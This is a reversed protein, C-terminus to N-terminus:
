FHAFYKLVAWFARDAWIDFERKYFYIVAFSIYVSKANLKPKREIGPGDFESKKAAAPKQRYFHM